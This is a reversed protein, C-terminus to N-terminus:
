RGRRMRAPKVAGAFRKDTLSVLFAELDAQEGATLGLPKALLSDRNIAGPVVKEPDNYFAIVEKLTAFQGNHMYPATVAVNRLGPVKFKGLEQGFGALAARGSDNLKKGDFLGINRFAHQTFDSGFHCQICKGKTNFLVFGRKVADSVSNSDDSFKWNDFPSDSTELSREFAAIAQGLNERNPESDFAELFYDRYRTSGLRVLAQDLPLDMELPNEIPALAQEELTKARGDWFFLPQISVNMASPTNRVGKRGYVGVSVASTDAFAHGPKHCSACSITGDKSLLPDFFLLKGLSVKDVPKKRGIVLKIMGQARGKCTDEILQFRASDNNSFFFIRYRGTVGKCGNDTVTFISDELTYTGSVFPKKNVYGEFSLDAKFVVGTVNGKESPATEWRGVLRNDNPTEATLAAVTFVLFFAILIRKM